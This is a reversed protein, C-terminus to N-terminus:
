VVGLRRAFGVQRYLRCGLCIGTAAALGAAGAVAAAVAYGGFPVGALLLASALSTGVAGLLKAFRHPAAPEREPPAGVAPLLSRWLTAYLDLRWGSAAATVLAVTVAYVAAPLQFAVGVLLLSATITQGFRPARPDVLTVDTETETSPPATM